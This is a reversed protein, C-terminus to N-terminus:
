SIVGLVAKTARGANQIYVSIPTHKYNELFAPRDTRACIVSAALLAAANLYLWTLCLFALCSLPYLSNWLWASMPGTSKDLLDWINSRFQGQCGQLFCLQKLLNDHGRKCCPIDVVSSLQFASTGTFLVWIMYFVLCSYCLDLFRHELLLSVM